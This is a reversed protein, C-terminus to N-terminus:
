LFEGSKGKKFWNFLTCARVDQKKLDMKVIIGDHICLDEFHDQEKLKEL